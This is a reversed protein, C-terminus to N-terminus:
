ISVSWNIKAHVRSVLGGWKQAHPRSCVLRLEGCEKARHGFLSLFSFLYPPFPPLFSRFPLIPLVPLTYIKTRHDPRNKQYVAAHNACMWVNSPAGRRYPCRTTSSFSPVQNPSPSSSNLAWNPILSLSFFSKRVKRDEDRWCWAGVQGSCCYWSDVLHLTASDTCKGM